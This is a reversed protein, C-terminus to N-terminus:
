TTESLPACLFHVVWMQHTPLAAWQSQTTTV